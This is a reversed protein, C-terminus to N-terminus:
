ENNNNDVSKKHKNLTKMKSIICEGECHDYEHLFVRADLGNLKMRRQRRGDNFGVHIEIPRVVQVKQGPYSLCGEENVNKENSIKFIRPNVVMIPYAQKKVNPDSNMMMVFMRHTLGVQNCTLGIGDNDKMITVMEKFYPVMDVPHEVKDLEMKLFGKDDNDVTILELM